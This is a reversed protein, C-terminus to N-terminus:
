QHVSGQFTSCEGVNVPMDEPGDAIGDPGLFVQCGGLFSTLQSKLVQGPVAPGHSHLALQIEATMPNLLGLATGGVEALGSGSVDGVRLHGGFNARGSGGIVHGGGWLFDGEAAPNGAGMDAPTCPRTACAAPNNFVVVWVTVVHGPALGSTSYSFSVGHESRVLMSTGAANAPDWNFYAPSTTSGQAAGATLTAGSSGQLAIAGGAVLALGRSTNVFRRPLSTQNGMTFLGKM